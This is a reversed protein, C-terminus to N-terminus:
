SSSPPLLVTDIVHIVGNSCVIDTITVQADNIVIFVSGNEIRITVNKGKFLTAASSVDATMVKGGVVHYMLIDRLQSVNEPKLLNAVTGAPLKAFAADTPAFVTFPGPGSLVGDLGAANVAGALTNFKKSAGLLNYITPPLLVTDIVHIVGNSAVIDTIIVQADNIFVKGNEVRISVSLGAVTSAFSLKVVDAAMVKGAVVHYTLIEQLKDLNKPMLLTAVTGAPLKAFAADTPAFVTFPGPSSLTKVLNAAKLATVITKFRGDAAAVDVITAPPFNFYSLRYFYSSVNDDDEVYKCVYHNINASTDSIRSDYGYKRSAAEIMEKRTTHIDLKVGSDSVTVNDGDRTENQSYELLSSSPDSSPLSSSKVKYASGNDYKISNKINNINLTSFYIDENKVDLTVPDNKLFIFNNNNGLIRNNVNKVDRCFTEVDHLVRGDTTCVTIRAGFKDGIYEKKSNVLNKPNNVWNSLNRRLVKQSNIIQEATVDKNSSYKKTIEHCKKAIDKFSLGLGKIKDNPLDSARLLISNTSKNKM